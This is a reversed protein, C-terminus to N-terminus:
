VLGLKSNSLSVGKVADTSRVPTLLKGLFGANLDVKLWIVALAADVDPEPFVKTVVAWSM